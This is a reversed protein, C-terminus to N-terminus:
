LLISELQCLLAVTAIDVFQSEHRRLSAVVKDLLKLNERSVTGFEGAEKGYNILYIRPCRDDLLDFLRRWGM